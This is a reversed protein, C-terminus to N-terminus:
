GKERFETIDRHFVFLSDVDEVPSEFNYTRGGMVKVRLNNNLYDLEFRDVQGFPLRFSDKHTTQYHFGESTAVLIGDCSGFRHKHVVRVEANLEDFLDVFEVWVSETKRGVTVKRSAVEYGEVAVTLNYQGPPLEAITVPTNGKFNRDLFVNAGPVDSEVLLSGLIEKLNAALSRTRGGRITVTLELPHFDRKEVRVPYEGAKLEEWTGPITGLLRGDFLVNAGETGEVQM